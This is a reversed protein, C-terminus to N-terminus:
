RSGFRYRLRVGYMRPEGFRYFDIGYVNLFGTGGLSYEKDLANSVFLSADIPSGAVGDWNASLNLLGFAPVYGGIQLNPDGSDDQWSWDGRVSVDGITAALPLRYRLGVGYKYQPRGQKEGRVLEATNLVTDGFETYEFTLYDFNLNLTLDDTLRAQAELEAGWLEAQAANGTISVLTPVGNNDLTFFQTAQIDSYDQYYLAANTRLPVNGIKWDSKVGFELDAVYEPKIDPLQLGTTPDVGNEGGPRYGRRSQLYLLTASTAQYELGLTWTFADSQQENRSTFSCNVRPETCVPPAPNIPDRGRSITFNEDWTQRVGATVSLGDAAASFDYTAQGFVARSKGGSKAESDTTVFGQTQRTLEFDNPAINELYFAGIQWNLREGFAKGLLQLEETVQQTTAHLPLVIGDYLPIVTTDFDFQTVTKSETYGAINRLTLGDTLEISTLNNLAFMSGASETDVGSPIVTRIGLAIQEAALAGYAPFFFPFICPGNCGAAPDSNLATIMHPSGNSDYDQYTAILDNHFRDSPQFSVTGRVSWFDRDDVDIGNPHSPSGLLRTFGDRQQGNFAFRTLLVDSAVPINVAADLERNNYNGAGVQIRGGFENTPRASQLLLAGGVASRGFLTGQPGKLVQVNDLDFLLGPGGALQALSATPIPVENLYAVVGPSGGFRNTGQGRIAVNVSDRNFLTSTATMSPVLYQLDGITYVNNDQLTQQSVVTIAIPVTQVKEEKRRATVVIEELEARPGDHSAGDDANRGEGKAESSAETQAVLFKQWFAKSRDADSSIDPDAGSAGEGGVHLLSGTTKGAGAAVPMQKPQRSRVLVTDAASQKAILDTGQLVYELAQETTLTARLAPATKNQVSEPEFLINTTTQQGISKLAESLTQEPLNFQYTVRADAATTFPVAFLALLAACSRIVFKERCFKQYSGTAFVHAFLNKAAKTNM